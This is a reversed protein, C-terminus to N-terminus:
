KEKRKKTWKSDLKHFFEQKSIGSEINKESEFIMKRFDKLTLNYDSLVKDLNQDKFQQNWETFSFKKMSRVLNKNQKNHEQIMKEITKLCKSDNLLLIEKILNIKRNQLIM